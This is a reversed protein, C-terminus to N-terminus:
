LAARCPLFSSECRNSRKRSPNCALVVHAVRVLEAFQEFGVREAGQIRGFAGRELRVQGGIAGLAGGCELFGAPQDALECIGRRVSSRRVHQAAAQHLDYTGFGGL